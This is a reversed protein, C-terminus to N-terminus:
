ESQLRRHKAALKERWDSSKDTDALTKDASPEASSAEPKVMEVPKTVSSQAAPLETPLGQNKVVPSEDIMPEIQDGDFVLHWRRDQLDTTWDHDEGKNALLIFLMARIVASKNQQHDLFAKLQKENAPILFQIVDKKNPM